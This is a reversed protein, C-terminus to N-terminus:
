IQFLYQGEVVEDDEELQENLDRFAQQVLEDKSPEVDLDIQVTRQSITRKTQTNGNSRLSKQNSTKTLNQSSNPRLSQPSDAKDVAQAEPNPEKDRQQQQYKQTVKSVQILDQSVTPLSNESRSNNFRDKKTRRFKKQNIAETSLQYSNQYQNEEQEDQNLPAGYNNLVPRPSEQKVLPLDENLTPQQM